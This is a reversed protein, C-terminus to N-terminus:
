FFLSSCVKYIVWQIFTPIMGFILSLPVWIYPGSRGYLDKALAWTVAASNLSQPVQGSWVNTGVPNLLIERQADVISIMVASSSISYVLHMSEYHIIYVM